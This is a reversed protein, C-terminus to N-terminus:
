HLFSPSSRSVNGASFAAILVVVNIVSPLGKIGAREIAIVWPSGAATSSDANLLQSDNPSVLLGLVSISSRDARFGDLRQTHKSFVGLVYFVAIRYFVKKIARPVERRPNQAEGATLAVANRSLHAKTPM